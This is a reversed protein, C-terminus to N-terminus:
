EHAKATSEHRYLSCVFLAPILIPYVLDRTTQSDVVKYYINTTTLSNSLYAVIYYNYM